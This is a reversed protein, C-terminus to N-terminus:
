GQYIYGIEQISLKLSHGLGIQVPTFKTSEQWVSHIAFKFAPLWRDWQRHHDGVCSAMM